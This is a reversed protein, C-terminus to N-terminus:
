MARSRNEKGQSMHKMYNKMLLYSMILMVMLQWNQLKGHVIFRYARIKGSLSFSENAPDLM